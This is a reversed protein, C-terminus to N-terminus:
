ANHLTVCTLAIFFSSPWTQLNSIWAENNYKLNYLYYPLTYSCSGSVRAPFSAGEGKCCLELGQGRIDNGTGRSTTRSVRCWARVGDRSVSPMLSDVSAVASLSLSRGLTDLIMFVYVGFRLRM